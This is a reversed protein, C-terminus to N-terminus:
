SERKHIRREHPSRERIYLILDTNASTSIAHYLIISVAQKMPHTQWEKTRVLSHSQLPTILSCDSLRNFSSQLSFYALQYFIALPNKYLPLFCLDPIDKSCEGGVNTREAYGRPIEAIPAGTDLLTPDAHDHDSAKDYSPPNHKYKCQHVVMDFIEEGVRWIVDSRDSQMEYAFNNVIQAVIDDKNIKTTGTTGHNANSNWKMDNLRAAAWTGLVQIKTPCIALSSIM